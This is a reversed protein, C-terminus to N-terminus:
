FDYRGSMQIRNLVGEMGNELERYAYLYEIGVMSVPTPSWLLNLHSSWLMKNVQGGVVQTDNNARAYGLLWSSRITPNWWHQYAAQIGLLDVTDVEGAVSLSGDNSHNATMYRGITGYNLQWKFNDKGVTNVSGSASIAMGWKNDDTTITGYTGKARLNRVLAAVVTSYKEGQWNVRGVMDPWQDNGPVVRGGEASSLTTEPNEVALQVSGTTWPQTYRLQAQRVNIEAVSGTFDLTEMKSDLSMFTSWTQGFLWNGPNAYAQRLRPAYSNSFREDGQSSVLFDMEVLSRFEGWYNTPTVTKFWLRSEKAHINLDHKKDEATGKLPILSPVLTDDAVQMTAGYDNYIVDLKVYGGWGVSTDSGPLKISKDFTGPTVVQELTVREGGVPSQVKPPKVERISQAKLAVQEKELHEIKQKLEQMVKVQAELQQKLEELSDAQALIPLGVFGSTSLSFWAIVSSLRKQYKPIAKKTVV